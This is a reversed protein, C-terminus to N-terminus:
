CFICNAFDHHNWIDFVVNKYIIKHTQSLAKHMRCMDTTKLREYKYWKGYEISRNLTKNLIDFLGHGAISVRWRIRVNRACLHRRNFDFLFRFHRRGLQAKERRRVSVVLDECSVAFHFVAGNERKVNRTVAAIAVLDVCRGRLCGLFGTAGSPWLKHRGIKLVILKIPIIPKSFFICIQIFERGLWSIENIRFRTCNHDLNLRMIASHFEGTSFPADIQIWDISAQQSQNAAFWYNQVLKLRRM